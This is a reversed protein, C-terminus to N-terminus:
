INLELGISIVRDDFDFFNVTSDRDSKIINLNFSAFTTPRWNVYGTYSHELDSRGSTGFQGRGKFDRDSIKGLVGIQIKESLFYTLGTLFTDTQSFTSDAREFPSIVRSLEASLKVKGSIFLDYNLEGVDGSYNRLKFTDFERIKRSFNGKVQHPSDTPSSFHVGYENEEYGRDFALSSNFSRNEYVADRKQVQFGVNFGSRFRYDVGYDFGNTEFGAQENFTSSNNRDTRSIGASFSFADYPSYKMHFKKSKNTRINKRISTFNRFDVLSQNQELEVVGTLSPTLSWYWALDYNKATFDLFSSQNYSRDVINLDAVFRQMSYSKDVKVGTSLLTVQDSVENSSQRFLNSDYTKSASASFQLTDLEDSMAYQSDFNFVCFISLCHRVLTLSKTKKYKAPM